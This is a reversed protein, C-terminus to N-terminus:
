RSRERIWDAIAPALTKQARKGVFIGIHGGPFSVETYDKTGVMSRLATSCVPPAIVDDEGYINLVPCVVARLDIKRDGLSLEGAALRNEVYFYKIWQRLSAATHSPRDSLWQEMSLFNRLQGEDEAIESLDVGYKTMSSVPTMFGFARAMLEGSLNGTGDVASDVDSASLARAWFHILGRGRQQDGANAHFDFPAVTTTVTNVKEPFVSAYIIDFIGGQCIGLLNVKEVRGRERVLDVFDDLYGFIYDELGVHCDVARPHGWDIAYIDLGQELLRRILSRDPSLDAITYRGVLAYALIVPIRVPSEVMPRYRYLRATGARGIEDKPTTAIEIESPDVAAVAARAANFKRWLEVLQLAPPPKSASNTTASM